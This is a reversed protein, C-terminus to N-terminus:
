TMYCKSKCKTGGTGPPVSPLLLRGGGNETWTANRRSADLRGGDRKSRKVCNKEVHLRGLRRKRDIPMWNLAIRCHREPQMRWIHGLMQLIKEKVTVSFKEM